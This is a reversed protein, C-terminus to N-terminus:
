PPEAGLLVTFAKPGAVVVDARGDGDLDGAGVAWAAHGLAVEARGVPPTHLGGEGDALWLLVKAKM